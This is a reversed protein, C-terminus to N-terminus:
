TFHGGHFVLETGHDPLLDHIALRSGGRGKRSPVHPQRGHRALGYRHDAHSADSLGREEPLHQGVAQGTRGVVGGIRAVPQHIETELVLAKGTQLAAVEIQQDFLIEPQVRFPPIPSAGGEEQVFDPEDARSRERSTAVLM